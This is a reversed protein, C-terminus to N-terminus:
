KVLFTRWKVTSTFLKAPSTVARIWGVDPQYRVPNVAVAAWLRVRLLAGQWRRLILIFKNAKIFLYFISLNYVRASPNDNLDVLTNVTFGINCHNDFKWSREMTGKITYRVHGYKGEFSSPIANPLNFSFPYDYQGVDLSMKGDEGPIIIIPIM